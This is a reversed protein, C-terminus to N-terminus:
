SDLMERLRLADEPAHGAATNDFYIYVDREKRKPPRSESFTPLDDVEGGSRWTEVREAWRRLDDDNYGSAYIEGPGHLRVYVFGATVDGVLPWESSHSCAVACGHQGALRLPESALFSPHRFEIVHRLRHNGAEGYSTEEVRDDHKRALAAAEDTDHPLLTLFSELRGRDYELNPPLQWLVPGLRGGLDLVGSAFFNALAQGSDRLRRTHTIYRSGKIAFVFRQPTQGRWSRVTAPTTMSYFTGNVEVTDFHDAVYGLRREPSLSRPYFGGRWEDYSWGSLGIRSRGM